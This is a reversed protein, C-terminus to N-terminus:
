NNYLRFVFEFISNYLAADFEEFSVTEFGFDNELYKDYIALRSALPASQWATLRNM